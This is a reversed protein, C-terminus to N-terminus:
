VPNNSTNMSVTRRVGEAIYDFRGTISVIGDHTIRNLRISRLEVIIDGDLIIFSTENEGFGHVSRILRDGLSEVTSSQGTAKTIADMVIKDREIVLRKTLDDIAAKDIQNM